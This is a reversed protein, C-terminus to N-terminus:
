HVEPDKETEDTVMNAMRNFKDVLEQRDVEVYEVFEGDKIGTRVQYMVGGKDEDILLQPEEIGQLNLTFEVVANHLPKRKGKVDEIKSLTTDLIEKVAKGLQSPTMDGQFIIRM